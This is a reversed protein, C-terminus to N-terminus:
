RAAARDRAAHQPIFVFITDTVRVAIFRIIARLRRRNIFPGFPENQGQDKRRLAITVDVFGLPLRYLLMQAFRTDPLLSALKDLLRKVLRQVRGTQSFADLIFFLRKLYIEETTRSNIDVVKHFATIEVRQAISQANGFVHTSIDLPINRGTFPVSVLFLGPLPPTVSADRQTKAVRILTNILCNLTIGGFGFAIGWM